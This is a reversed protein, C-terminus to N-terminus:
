RMDVACKNVHFLALCDHSALPAWRILISLSCSSLVISRWIPSHNPLLSFVCPSVIYTIDWRITETQLTVFWALKQNWVIGVGSRCVVWHCSPHPPPSSVKSRWVSLVHKTRQLSNMWHDDISTTHVSQESSPVCRIERLSQVDPNGWKRTFTKTRVQIYLYPSVHDRIFIM